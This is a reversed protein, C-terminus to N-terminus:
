PFFYSVSQIARTLNDLLTKKLTLQNEIQTAMLFHHHDHFSSYM